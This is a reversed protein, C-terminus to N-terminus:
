PVLRLDAPRSREIVTRGNPLDNEELKERIEVDSLGHGEWRASLRRRLEGEDVDILVTLDFLPALRDWPPDQLLLYNGEVLVLDASCPIAAAGTRAIEIERDFVPVVIEDEANDRLRAIMHALGPVDFTHPAGKRPRLGRPVLLRDDYHYGDMALVAARGPSDRNLAEALKSATTSKGSGPAGVIAIIRRGPPLAAIRQALADQTVTQTM